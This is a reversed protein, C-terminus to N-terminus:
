AFLERARIYEQLICPPFRNCLLGQCLCPPLSCCCALVPVSAVLSLVGAGFRSTNLAKMAEDNCADCSPCEFVVTCYYHFSRGFSDCCWLHPKWICGTCAGCVFTRLLVHCIYMMLVVPELLQPYSSRLLVVLGVPVSTQKLAVNCQCVSPGACSLFPCSRNRNVGVGSRSPGGNEGFGPFM